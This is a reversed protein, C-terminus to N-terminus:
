ILGLWVWDAFYQTPNPNKNKRRYHSSSTKYSLLSLFFFHNQFSLLPDARDPQFPNQPM